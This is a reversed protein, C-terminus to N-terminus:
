RVEFFQRLYIPLGNSSFGELVIEFEGSIDSTFFAIKPNSSLNKLTPLWLLQNRYDPTRENKSEETYQQKFYIKDPQPAQIPTKIFYRGNNVFEFDNNKTTLSVIGNFVVDGYFYGQNFVNAKQIKNVPFEFLPNLDQLPLGDVLVLPKEKLNVNPDYDVLFIEYKNRRKQFHVEKLIETITEEVTPFRNFNDLVYEKTISGFFPILTAGNVLSDTKKVFYVNEIQSAISREIIANKLSPNLVLKKPVNALKYGESRDLSIAYQDKNDDFVQVVVESNAYKKDLCFRFKGNIDTKVIKFDFNKGVLSLSVSIKDINNKNNTATITGSIIEGRFEPLLTKQNVLIPIDENSAAFDYATPKRITPLNELKRVSICYNGSSIEPNLTTLKVVVEQRKEFVTKNTAMLVNKDTISISKFNKYITDTTQQSLVNKSPQTEFPNIISINTLFANNEPKNLMWKTYSVLTYNGSILTPNIFFDSNALGNELFLKHMFVAKKDSDILEVYAIKSIESKTLGASNMCSVNYFLTEGTVFTTANTHLFITESTTTLLKKPFSNETAAQGQLKGIFALLLFIILRDLIITKHKIFIFHLRRM